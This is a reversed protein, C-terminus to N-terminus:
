TLHLAFVYFIYVWFISKFMVDCGNRTGFEYRHLKLINKGSTQGGKKLSSPQTSTHGFDEDSHIKLCNQYIHFVQPGCTFM